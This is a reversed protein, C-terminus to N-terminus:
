PTVEQDDGCELLWWDPYTSADPYLERLRVLREEETEPELPPQMDAVGRCEAIPAAERTKAEAVSESRTASLPLRNEARDAPQRTTANESPPLYRRFADELDELKYGKGKGAAARVEKPGVGFPHLLKGLGRASLEKGRSWEPWPREDMGNLTELIESTLLREGRDAFLARLDELLLIGATQESRRASLTVAAQRARSPWDDGAVDAIAFLARWNDAARGYLEPPIEPELSRLEALNDAAWRAAQRQLPELVDVRHLRPPEVCEGPALRKLEVHISRSALTAPLKGILAIAKPAWTRFITPEHNDGVTRVVYASSRAHGSNLVGRLEDNDRLFTDAEDILLTPEYKEVARFLAAATINAAPLPRRVVAQLLTLCTTKGCEPTPSTIALIPSVDAAENAHSHVVWLAVAEAAGAPLSVYRRVAAALEDLLEAGNVEEPWPDPDELFLGGTEQGGKRRTEVVKDLVSARVELLDAAAKREREYSVADLGALRTLERELLEEPDPEREQFAERVADAGQEAALDNFDTGRSAEPFAPVVLRAGAAAAAARAKTLGPNGETKDDNDAAIILELEPHAGRITRAVPELNGANFAVAVPLGTAKQITAGTAYGEAVVLARGQEIEGILHFGGRIEGGTLFRKRGEATIFQLSLLRGEASRVPVVLASRYVHLGYAEVGKAGLYPHRAGAPSAELIRRARVAAQERREHEEREREARAKEVQRRLAAREEQSLEEGRTASWTEQIGRKWCGFAGAPPDLHLVYWGNRSGRADEGIRFRHLRGDAHVTEPPSLGASQMAARFDAEERM